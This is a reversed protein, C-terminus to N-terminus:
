FVRLTSNEGPKFGSADLKDVIARIERRVREADLRQGQADHLEGGLRRQTYVVAKLMSDFVAEPAASRPISFGFVLDQARVQNAAIQEPLFYSPPTSTWVSFYHDDGIRSENQWHFLDMDGWRLGLCLMVDWIDRGEFQRGSPASLIVTVERNSISVLDRVRDSLHAADLASQNARIRPHGLQKTADEVSNRFRGLDTSDIPISTESGPDYLPWAVALKSFTKPGNSSVLYTWHNTEPSWGYITPRGHSKIWNDNFQKRIAGVDLIPDGEFEVDIVWDIAEDPRYDREEVTHREHTQSSPAILLRSVDESGSTPLGTREARAASASSPVVAFREDANAVDPHLDARRPKLDSSGDFMLNRQSRMWKFYITGGIVMVALLAVVLAIGKV